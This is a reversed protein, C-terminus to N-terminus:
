PEQRGGPAVHAREADGAGIGDRNSGNRAQVAQLVAQGVVLRLAQARLRAALAGRVLRLDANEPAIVNGTAQPVRRAEVVLDGPDDGFLFVVGDALVSPHERQDVDGHGVGANTAPADLVAVVE